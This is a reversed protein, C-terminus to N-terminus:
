PRKPHPGCPTHWCRYPQSLNFQNASPLTEAPLCCAAATHILISIYYQTQLMSEQMDLMSEQMDLMSEQMDLLCLHAQEGSTSTKSQKGRQYPIHGVDIRNGRM